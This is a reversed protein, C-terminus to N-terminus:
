YGSPLSVRRRRIPSEWALSFSHGPNPNRHFPSPSLRLRRLECRLRVRVINASLPVFGCDLCRSSESDLTLESPVSLTRITYSQVAWRCLLDGAPVSALTHCTIGGCVCCWGAASAQTSDGGGGGDEGDLVLLVRIEAISGGCEFERVVTLALRKMRLAMPRRQHTRKARDHEDLDCTAEERMIRCAHASEREGFAGRRSDMDECGTWWRFGERGHGAGGAGMRM